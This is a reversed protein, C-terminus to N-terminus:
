LGYRVFSDVVVSSPEDILFCFNTNGAVAKTIFYRQLFLREIMRPNTEHGGLKEGALKGWVFVIGTDTFNNVIKNSVAFFLQHQSM